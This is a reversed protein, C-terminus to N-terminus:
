LKGDAELKLRIENVIKDDLSTTSKASAWEALMLLVRLVVRESLMSVVMTKACGALVGTIMM